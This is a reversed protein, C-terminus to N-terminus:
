KYARNKQFENYEKSGVAISLMGDESINREKRFEKSFKYCGIHALGGSDLQLNIATVTSKGIKDAKYDFTGQDDKKAKNKFIEFLEKTIKKQQVYCSNADKPYLIRASISHVIFKKDDPKFLLLIEDYTDSKKKIEIFAFEKSGFGYKMTNIVKKKDMYNLTSDGISMGEIQFDRIYDAKSPIAFCLSLIIIVTIKKMQSPM